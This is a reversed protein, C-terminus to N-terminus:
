VMKAKVVYQFIRYMFEEAEGLSVLQNILRTKEEDILQQTGGLYEICFGGVQFMKCIENYTFMHIHTKDLLGTETYTFNGTLLGEMVSIHMLNPVSAIIYGGEKLLKRCYCITKLPDHLHELVDGFIIYDFRNDAWDLSEEEINNVEVKAFFSAIRASNPNLESGYVDVNPFRNKIELLTAGCDCGIELVSFANERDECILEVLGKNYASIFYHMGWKQELYRGDEEDVLINQVSEYIDWLVATECVKIKWRKLIMRIFYGKLAYSRTKLAKDFKGLEQLVKENLLVAGEHLGIVRKSRSEAFTGVINIADEWDGAVLFEQADCFGNSVPGVAGVDEEEHLVKLMSEICGPTLLYRGTMILVDGDTYVYTLDEQMVAWESLGDTSANDLLIVSMNDIGFLRISQITLKVYEKQNNAIVLITLKNM